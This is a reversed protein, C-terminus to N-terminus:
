GKEELLDMVVLELYVENFLKSCGINKINNAADIRLNLMTDEDGEAIGAWNDYDKRFRKCLEATKGNCNGCTTEPLATTTNILTESM